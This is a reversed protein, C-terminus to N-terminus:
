LFMSRFEFNQRKKFSLLSKDFTSWSCDSHILLESGIGHSSWPWAIRKFPSKIFHM